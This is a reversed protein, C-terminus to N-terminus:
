IAVDFLQFSDENAIRPMAPSLRSVFAHLSVDIPQLHFELLCIPSVLRQVFLDPLQFRLKCVQLLTQLLPLNTLAKNTVLAKM